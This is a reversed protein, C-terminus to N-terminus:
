LKDCEDSHSLFVITKSSNSFHLNMYFTKNIITDGRSFPGAMESKHSVKQKCVMYRGVRIVMGPPYFDTVVQLPWKPVLGVLFM